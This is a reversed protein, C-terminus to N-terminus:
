GTGRPDEGVLGASWCLPQSTSHRAKGQARGRPNPFPGHAEAYGPGREPCLTDGETGVWHFAGTPLPQPSCILAWESATHPESIVGIVILM